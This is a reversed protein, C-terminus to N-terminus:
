FSLRAGVYAARGLSPYGRVSEYEEDLLNETRAFISWTDTVDWNAVLDVVFSDEHDERPFIEESDFYGIGTAGFSVADTAQYKVSFQVTHRPRRAPRGDYNANGSGQEATLYTYSIGAKVKPIIQCDVSVEVGETTLEDTYFADSFNQNFGIADDIESRFLILDWEIRGEFLKQRIGLEYSLAKEAENLVTQEPGTDSSLDLATPPAYSTAIKAFLTMQMNPISYIAELNGTWSEDFDSYNDYRVGGRVEFADNFRYLLQAFGGAQETTEMYVSPSSNNLPSRVRDIEDNRYLGGLTLLAADSLTYDIQLSVEDTKIDAVTEAAFFGSSLDEREFEGRSYFFHVTLEDTAYKLGPSILWNETEGIDNLTPSTVSGPVEKESDSFMGLFEFTLNEVIRYDFRGSVSQSEFGDNDRENNTSLASGGISVGWEDRAVFASGGTRYYENSGLESEISGGEAQHGYTSATRVDVVGGIGSSGYNVSSAGKQLQVSGVNNAMFSELDSQGSFGSNLRRGDVFFSTHNSEAGRLFLSTVSGPTGNSRLTVGAERELADVVRRDQWFEMEEASIYSVSPSVRDLALPTRTAVVVYPVLEQSTTADAAIEEARLEATACTLALGLASARRLTNTTKNMVEGLYQWFFCRSLYLHNNLIM